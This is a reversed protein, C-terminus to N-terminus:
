GHRFTFLAKGARLLFSNMKHISYYETQKAGFARFFREVPEIMSGEFDFSRTVTSSFRIAEWLCLSTAGSSRLVPDGGGMLYYASNEDWIIYAGAHPVGHPDEIIFFRGSKRTTCALHLKEILASQYPVQLGQRAFTQENLRIFDGLVASQSIRLKYRNHAKKIDTKINSGLGSWLIDHNTLDPIRYTYRTSQRYGRWFFPLWNRQTHHWNQEYKDHPPLQEILANMWDKTLALSKGTASLTPRIWPGLTQTLPPQTLTTLGFRRRVEFPLSAVVEDGREVLVVDWNKEGATADLWWDRAFIPISQEHACLLRYKAKRPSEQHQNAQRISVFAM